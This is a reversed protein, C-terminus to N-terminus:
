WFRTAPPMLSLPDTARLQEALKWTSSAAIVAVKPMAAIGSGFFSTADSESSLVLVPKGLGLAYGMEAHSGFSEAILGIFCDSAAVAALCRSAVESPALARSGWRNIDRHPLLVKHGHAEIANALATLQVRYSRPISEAYEEGSFLAGGKSAFERRTARGTYPAALYVQKPRILSPLPLVKGSQHLFQTATNTGFLDLQDSQSSHLLQDVERALTAIAADERYDVLDTRIPLVPTRKEGSWARLKGELKALHDPPYDGQYDRPRKLLREQCVYAPCECLVIMTPGELGFALDSGLRRILEIGRDDISGDDHFREAFVQIDEELTRDLIFFEGQELGERIAERKHVAFSIQAETTWREPQRFLDKIYSANYSSRPYVRCNFKSALGRAITTKGSGLNGSIAIYM